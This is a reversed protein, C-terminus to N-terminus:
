MLPLTDKSSSNCLMSNRVLHISSRPPLSSGSSKMEFHDAVNRMYRRVHGRYAKSTKLSYGKLKLATLLKQELAQAFKEDNSRKSSLALEDVRIEAEPFCEAFQRLKEETCPFRWFKGNPDWKGGGVERLKGVDAKSFEALKVSMQDNEIRHIQIYM